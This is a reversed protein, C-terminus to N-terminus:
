LSTRLRHLPDSWSTSGPGYTLLAPAPETPTGVRDFMADLVSSGAEALRRTARLGEGVEEALATLAFRHEQLQTAWPEGATRTLRELLVSEDAAHTGLLRTAAEQVHVARDLECVRVAEVAREVEEAAWGLFRPDGSALLHGLETLKFVMLELLLRERQLLVCLEALPDV